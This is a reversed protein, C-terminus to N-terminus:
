RLRTQLNFFKNVTMMRLSKRHSLTQFVDSLTFHFKRTGLFGSPDASLDVGCVLEASIIKEYLQIVNTNGLHSVEAGRLVKNGSSPEDRRLM